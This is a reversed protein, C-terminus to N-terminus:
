GYTALAAWGCGATGMSWAALGARRAMPWPRAQDLVLLAWGAVVCLLAAFMAAHPPAAGEVLSLAVWSGPGLTLPAIWWPSLRGGESTRVVGAALSLTATFLSAALRPLWGSGPPLLGAALVGLLIVSTCTRLRVRGPVRMGLLGAVMLVGAAQLGLGMGVWAGDARKLPAVSLGAAVALMALAPIWLRLHARPSM